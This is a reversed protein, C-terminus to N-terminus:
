TRLVSVSILRLGFPRVPPDCLAAIARTRRPGPPSRGTVAALLLAALLVAVAMAGLVAVCMEWVNMGRRGSDVAATSHACGDGRCEGSRTLARGAGPVMREAAPAVAVAPAMGIAAAPAVAFTPVMDIAAAPAVVVAPARVIAAAPAVVAHPMGAVAPPAIAAAAQPPHAADHLHAGHGLTSHGITHMAALGFLTCVLLLSRAWRGATAAEGRHM